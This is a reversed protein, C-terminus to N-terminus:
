DLHKLKRPPSSRQLVEESTPTLADRDLIEHLERVLEGFKKGDQETMIANALQNFRERDARTM